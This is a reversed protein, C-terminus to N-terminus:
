ELIVEEGNQMVSINRSEQDEYTLNIILSDKPIFGSIQEPWEIIILTKPTTLTESFNLQEMESEDEIRYADIHILREFSQNNLPYNKQIVFTPSQIPETIGLQKGVEQTLTTKGAGLNGHLAVVLSNQPNKNKEFLHLLKKTIQPIDEQTYNM